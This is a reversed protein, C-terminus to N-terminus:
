RCRAIVLGSKWFETRQRFRRYLADAGYRNTGDIFDQRVYSFALRSGPALPRLADLTAAVAEASLYQTVGEWIVFARQDPRYGHSTLAEHLKQALQDPEADAPIDVDLAGRGDAGVARLQWTEDDAFIVFAHESM